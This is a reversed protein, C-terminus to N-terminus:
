RSTNLRVLALAVTWATSFTGSNPRGNIVNDGTLLGVANEGYDRAFDAFKQNSLAKIPATYFARKGEALAIAIAAEAILTKGAGTPATVVVSRGDVIAAVTERQYADAAFPLGAFFAEAAAGRGNTM